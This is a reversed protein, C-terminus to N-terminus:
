CKSHIEDQAVKMVELAGAAILKKALSVGLEECKDFAPRLSEKHCFFGCYLRCEALNEILSKPNCKPVKLAEAEYDILEVHQKHMFPCKDIEEITPPVFVKGTMPCKLGDGGGGEHSLTIKQATNLVPCEGMFDQGIPMKLPDFPCGTASDETTDNKAEKLSQGSYPCVNFVKGHINVLETADKGGMSSPSEDIIEPSRKLKEKEEESMKPRKSPSVEDDDSNDENDDEVVFSESIKDVIETKGNLSWVGGDVKM